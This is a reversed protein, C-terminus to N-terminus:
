FISRKGWCTYGLSTALNVLTDICIINYLIITRILLADLAILTESNFREIFIMHAKRLWFSFSFLGFLLFSFVNIYKLIYLARPLNISYRCM